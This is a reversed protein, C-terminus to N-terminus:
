DDWRDIELLRFRMDFTLEMRTNLKVEYDHRDNDISIVYSDPYNANIYTVIQSPIAAIPVRSYECDIEKWQGNGYFEVRRGDKFYVEYTTDFVERDVTALAVQADAFHQAIFNKAPQPLRDVSIPRDDGAFLPTSIMVALLLMVIKKM